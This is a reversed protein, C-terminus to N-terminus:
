KLSSSYHYELFYLCPSINVDFAWRFNPTKQFFSKNKTWIVITLTRYLFSVQDFGPDTSFFFFFDRICDNLTAELLFHTMFIQM